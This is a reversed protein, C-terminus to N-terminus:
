KRMLNKSAEVEDAYVSLATDRDVNYFLMVFMVAKEKLTESLVGNVKQAESVAAMYDLTTEVKRDKKVVKPRKYTNWAEVCRTEEDGYVSEWSEGYLREWWDGHTNTRYYLGDDTEVQYIKFSFDDVFKM